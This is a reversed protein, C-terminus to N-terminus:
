LWGSPDQQNADISLVEMTGAELHVITPYSWNREFLEHASRTDDDLVPVTTLSYTTAWANLESNEISGSSTDEVLVEIYQFGSSGYTTQKSQANNAAAKCSGCWMASFVLMVHNDCFSYLDVDDGNHDTLQFNAVIDGTAYTNARGNNPGSPTSATPLTSGCTAVNYTSTYSRDYYDYPDTGAATEDADTQGDGDTDTTSSGSGSGSSSGGSGSGSGSGGSGSGSGSGSGGSGSGSSGSGSGSGDTGTSSSSDDGGDDEGGSDGGDDTGDGGEDMGADGGVEGGEGGEDMAGDDGEDMAGDDGEDMAGDDGEEGGDGSTDTGGEDGGDGSSDGGDGGQDVDTNDDAYSGGGSDGDKDGCAITLALLLPLTTARM